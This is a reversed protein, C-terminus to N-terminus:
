ENASAKKKALELRDNLRMKEIEATRMKNILLAYEYTLAIADVQKKSLKISSSRGTKGNFKITIPSQSHEYIFNGVTDCQANSFTILESNGYHYNLAGDYEVAETTASVGDALASVSVHNLGNSPNVSSVLYFQGEPSVRCSIGTKDAFQNDYAASAIEYGEIQPLSVKRINAKLSDLRHSADAIVSDNDAIDLVTVAQIITPRLKLSARMTQTDNKYTVDLSDLLQLAQRPNGATLRDSAQQLLSQADTQEKSETNSCGIATMAIAALIISKCAVNFM